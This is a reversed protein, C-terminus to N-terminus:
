GVFSHVDKSRTLGMCLKIKNITEEIEEDKFGKEKLDHKMSNLMMFLMDSSYMQKSFSKLFSVLINKSPIPLMIEQKQKVMLSRDSNLDSSCGAGIALEQVIGCWYRKGDYRLAPCKEKNYLRMSLSCPAKKCCYGCGVCDNM